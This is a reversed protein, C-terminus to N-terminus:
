VGRFVPVRKALFAEMGERFDQSTYCFRVLDEGPPLSDRLRRLAEKTARLT